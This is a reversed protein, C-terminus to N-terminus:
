EDKLNSQVIRSGQEIAESKYILPTVELFNGYEAAIRKRQNGYRHLTCDVISRLLIYWSWM